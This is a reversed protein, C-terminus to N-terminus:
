PLTTQAAGEVLEMSSERELVESLLPVGLGPPLVARVLAPLSLPFCCQRRDAWLLLLTNIADVGTALRLLLSDWSISGRRRSYFQFSFPLFECFQPAM